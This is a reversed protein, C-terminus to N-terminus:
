DVFTLAIHQTAFLDALQKERVENMIAHDNIDMADLIFDGNERNTLYDTWIDQPPGFINEPSPVTKIEDPSSGMALAMFGLCCKYGFGADKAKTNWLESDYGGYASKSGRLWESRKIELQQIQM